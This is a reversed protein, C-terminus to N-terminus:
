ENDILRKQEVIIRKLEQIVNSNPDVYWAFAVIARNLRISSNVIPTLPNASFCSFQNTEGSSYKFVDGM